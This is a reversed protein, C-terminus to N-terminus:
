TIRAVEFLARPWCATLDAKALFSTPYSDSMQAAPSHQPGGSPCSFGTEVWVLEIVHSPTAFPPEPLSCKFGPARSNSILGRLNEGFISFVFISFSSLSKVCHINNLWFSHEM